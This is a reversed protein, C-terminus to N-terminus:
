GHEAPLQEHVYAMTADIKDAVSNILEPSAGEPVQATLSVAMQDRDLNKTARVMEELAADSAVIESTVKAGPIIKNLIVPQVKDVAILKIKEKLEPAFAKQLPKSVAEHSVFKKVFEKPM